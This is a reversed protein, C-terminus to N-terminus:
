AAIFIKHSYFHRMQNSLSSAYFAVFHSVIDIRQSLSFILAFTWCPTSTASFSLLHFRASDRDALFSIPYPSCIWVSEEARIRQGQGSRS